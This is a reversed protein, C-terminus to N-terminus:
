FQTNPEFDIWYFICSVKMQKNERSKPLIKTWIFAPKKLVFILKQKHSSVDLLVHSAWSISQNCGKSSKQQPSSNFLTKNSLHNIADIAKPLQNYLYRACTTALVLSQDVSYLQSDLLDTFIWISLLIEINLTLSVRTLSNTFVFCFNSILPLHTTRDAFLKTSHFTPNKDIGLLSCM